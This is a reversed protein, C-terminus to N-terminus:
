IVVNVIRNKVVIIKRVKKDGIARQVAEETTAASKIDDESADVPMTINARLKGNVQVPLTITNAIILKEDATPWAVNVLMQSHGLRNWLEEAIHPMMPSIIRVLIEFSERLAWNDNSTQIKFQVIYNTLEYIKAVAANFRFSEINESIGAIAKHVKRRLEVAQESIKEPQSTNVAPLQDLQTDILRWLRQTYRWSGDIGSETWEMDRDPPSDSLMFFRATDSGYSGIIDAPDITNKKSKSMKISPGVLVSSGDLTKYGGDDNKEIEEPSLWAGNTDQYTEHCIMGQTFLGKFPEEMGLYGCKKLGRTFFRSYLLHLVAHEVGGIYQDVPLWYDVDSREFADESRPSCFRAFYWSSEMFTDFTDTERQAPKGCSPCATHKWTPHHAIPNGPKDFSVDEPLEIPLDQAKVPVAGCDDCYVIPIPCGWYRQRSVGWDRLRFQVTGKGNGTEELHNIATKKATDSDMGNLFESNIMKGDGTYAENAISFNDFNEDNPLVVPTVRLNYKRAFDLDRQDHAPCGFIAGTGYDMLVFNAVYIPLEISPDLPHTVKLGTDFGKKDAKEIAEESTGMKNCEAIFSKLDASEVSLKDALPHNASVACFSAGFLTDPRTTYVEISEGSNVIPFFVRAGESRGIWNHQMTRVKEPWRDLSELGELLEDAFDTIKFFWQSLKRKEVEAGSRWGKGDIVQENALVTQDVPDWNVWSEKREVLGAKLFDLFMKQEHKYYQPHCTAIEREWDISLGMSQLQERMAAINEYTWKGPHVGRAMAANEAPLGFADWGMPHLVNFGKAKKYRSIVDGITYNRVHGMHIRGSPYPFMELVYYKPKDTDTEVTFSNNDVWAKQWKTETEKVNYRTM